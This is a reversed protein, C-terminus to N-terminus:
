HSSFGKTCHLSYAMTYPLALALFFYYAPLPATPSPPCLLNESPSRLIHIAKSIYIFFFDLLLFAGSSTLSIGNGRFIISYHRSVHLENYYLLPSNNGREVVLIM